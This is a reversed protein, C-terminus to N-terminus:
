PPSATGAPLVGQPKAVNAMGVVVVCADAHVYLSRVHLQEPDPWGGLGLSLLAGHAARM